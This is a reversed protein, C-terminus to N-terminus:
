FALPNQGLRRIMAYQLEREGVIPKAVHLDGLFFSCHSGLKVFMYVVTVDTTKICVAYARVRVCVCVCVCVCVSVCVCVEVRRRRLADSERRREGEM